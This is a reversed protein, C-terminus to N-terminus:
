EVGFDRKIKWVAFDLDGQAENITDICNKVVEKSLSIIYQNLWGEGYFNCDTPDYEFGAKKALEEILPTM